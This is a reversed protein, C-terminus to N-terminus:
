RSNSVQNGQAAHNATALGDGQSAEVLLELLFVAHEDGLRQRDFFMPDGQAGEDGREEIVQGGFLGYADRGLALFALPVQAVHHFFALARHDQKHVFRM